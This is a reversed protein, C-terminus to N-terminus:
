LIPGLKEMAQVFTKIRGKEIECLVAKESTLLLSARPEGPQNNTQKNSQELTVMGFIALDM